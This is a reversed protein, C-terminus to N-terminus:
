AQGAFLWTGSVNTGEGCGQLNVGVCMFKVEWGVISNLAQKM